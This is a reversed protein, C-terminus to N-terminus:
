AAVGSSRRVLERWFSGTHAPCAPSWPWDVGTRVSLTWAAVAPRRAPHELGCGPWSCACCRLVAEPAIEEFAALGALTRANMDPANM